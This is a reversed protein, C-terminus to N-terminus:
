MDRRSIHKAQINIRDFAMACVTRENIQTNMPLVVNILSAINDIRQQLAVGIMPSTSAPMKQIALTVLQAM